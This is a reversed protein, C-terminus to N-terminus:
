QKKRKHGKSPPALNSREGSMSFVKEQGRTGPVVHGFTTVQLMPVSEGLRGQGGVAGSVKPSGSEWPDGRGMADM